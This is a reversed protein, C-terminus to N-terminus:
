QTENKLSSLSLSKRRAKKARLRIRALPEPRKTVIRYGYPSFAQEEDSLLNTLVLLILKALLASKATPGERSNIIDLDGLSKLRKFFLEVQWRTRYLECAQQDSLRDCSMNTLLWLLKGDRCRVGVLRVPHCAIADKTNWGSAAEDPPVPLVLDFSVPGAEPVSDALLVWSM